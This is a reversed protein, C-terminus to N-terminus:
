VEFRIKRDTGREGGREEKRMMMSASEFGAVLGGRWGGGERWAV